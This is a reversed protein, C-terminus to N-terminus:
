SSAGGGVHSITGVKREELAWRFPGEPGGIESMSVFAKSCVKLWVLVRKYYPKYKTHTKVHEEFECKFFFFTRGCIHCTVPLKKVQSSYHEKLSIDRNALCRHYDYNEDTVDVTIFAALANRLNWLATELFLDM